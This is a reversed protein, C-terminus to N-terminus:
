LKPIRLSITHLHASPAAHSAAYLAGCLAPLFCIQRGTAAGHPRIAQEDAEPDEAAHNPVPVREYAMETHLSFSLLSVCCQHFRYAWALWFFSSGLLLHAVGEPFASYEGLGARRACYPSGHRSFCLGSTSFTWNQDIKTNLVYNTM